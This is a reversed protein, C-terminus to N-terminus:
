KAANLQHSTSQGDVSLWSQCIPDIGNSVDSLSGLFISVNHAKIEAMKINCLPTKSKSTHKKVEVPIPFIRLIYFIKLIFRITELVM